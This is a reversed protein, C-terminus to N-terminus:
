PAVAASSCPQQPSTMSGPNGRSEITILALLDPFILVFFQVLVTNLLFYIEM